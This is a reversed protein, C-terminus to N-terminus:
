FSGFVIPFFGLSTEPIVNVLGIQVGRARDAYNVVGVQLGRLLSATNAFGVQVGRVESSINALGLQLGKLRSDVANVLGVDVGTVNPTLGYLLNLRLGCVDWGTWPLDVPSWLSLMLPTTVRESALMESASRREPQLPERLPDRTASWDKTPVAFLAACFLVATLSMLYRFCKMSDM